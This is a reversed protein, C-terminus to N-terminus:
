PSTRRRAHRRQLQRDALFGVEAADDLEEVVGGDVVVRVAGAGGPRDRGLELVRLVRHVVREDLADDDAVVVEHLAVEGVLGDAGVLEGARERRAHGLARHERHQAAARVLSTPM